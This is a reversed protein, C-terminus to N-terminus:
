DARDFVCFVSALNSIENQGNGCEIRSQILLHGTIPISSTLKETTLLTYLSSGHEVGDRTDCYQSNLLPITQLSRLLLM